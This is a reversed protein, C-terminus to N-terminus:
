KKTINQPTGGKSYKSIPSKIQITDKESFFSSSYNQKKRRDMEWEEIVKLEKQEEKLHELEELLQLIGKLEKKSTVEKMLTKNRESLDDLEDSISHISEMLQKKENILREKNSDEFDSTYVELESKLEMLLAEKEKNKNVEKLLKKKLELNESEM